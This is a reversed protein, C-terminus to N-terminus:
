IKMDDKYIVQQKSEGKKTVVAIGNLRDNLWTGTVTEGDKYILQGNGHKVDNIWQGEFKIGDATM